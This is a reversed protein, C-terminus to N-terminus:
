MYIVTGGSGDLVQGINHLSSIVARKGPNNRVFDCCAIVKPLMSGVGFHGEEIYSEAQEVTIQTLKKQRPTGYHIYVNDVATLIILMDAGILRALKASAFDKDIVAEVPVLGNVGRSVPVGGGGATIVLHGKELLTIIAHIELISVPRPSPVVRRFGRGADSIFKYGPNETELNQAEERTYFPGIPKSPNHFAPDQDDVEVQTVLTVAEAGCKSNSLLRSFEHQIWFGIMGQTMAVCTNLPLAPTLPGDAAKQQLMLQGVQPGNGHTIVVQNGELLLPLLHRVTERIALQQARADAKGTQISNGGLAITIKSM